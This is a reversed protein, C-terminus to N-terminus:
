LTNSFLSNPLTILEQDLMIKKIKGRPGIPVYHRALDEIMLDNFAKNISSLKENISNSLPDCLDEISKNMTNFNLRNSITKYIETLESKHKDLEKLRTGEPHRLFFFYLVKPLTTMKVEQNQYKPLIIKFDDTVVLPSLIPTQLQKLSSLVDEGLIEVLVNIGNARQLAAIEDRIKMAKQRLEERSTIHPNVNCRNLKKEQPKNQIFSIFQKESPNPKAGFSRDSQPNFDLDFDRDIPKQVIQTIREGILQFFSAIENIYHEPLDDTLSLALITCDEEYASQPMLRCLLSINAFRSDSPLNVTSDTLLQKSLSMIERSSKDPYRLSLLKDMETTKLSDLTLPTMQFPLFPLNNLFATIETQHNKFFVDIQRHDPNELYFVQDVPLNYTQSLLIESIM